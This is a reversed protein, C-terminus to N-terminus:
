FEKSLLKLQPPTSQTLVESFRYELWYVFPLPYETAPPRVNLLFDEFFAALFLICTNNLRSAKLSIPQVDRWAQFM